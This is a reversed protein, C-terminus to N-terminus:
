TWMSTVDRHCLVQPVSSAADPAAQLQLCREGALAQLALLQDLDLLEPAQRYASASAATVNLLRVAM